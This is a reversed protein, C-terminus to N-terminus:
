LRLLAAEILKAALGLAREPTLRAVAAYGDEGFLSLAIPKGAADAIVIRVGSVSRANSAPRMAPDSKRLTPATSM